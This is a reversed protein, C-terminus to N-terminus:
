IIVASTSLTNAASLWCPNDDARLRDLRATQESGTSIIALAGGSLPYKATNGSGPRSSNFSQHTTLRCRRVSAEIQRDLHHAARRKDGLRLDEGEEGPSSVTRRITSPTAQARRRAACLRPHLDADSPPRVDSEKRPEVNARPSHQRLPGQAGGRAAPSHGRYTHPRLISGAFPDDARIGARILHCTSGGQISDPVRTASHSPCSGMREHRHGEATAKMPRPTGRHTREVSHPITCHSTRLKKIGSLYALPCPFLMESSAGQDTTFTGAGSFTVIGTAYFQKAVTEARIDTDCYQRRGDGGRSSDIM